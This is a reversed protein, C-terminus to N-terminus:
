YKLFNNFTKLYLNKVQKRVARQCNQHWCVTVINVTELLETAILKLSLSM